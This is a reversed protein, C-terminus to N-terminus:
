FYCLPSYWPAYFEVLIIDKDNIVDDFNDGTLVLVDNEEAPSIDSTGAAFKLVCVEYQICCEVLM